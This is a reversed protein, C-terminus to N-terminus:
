GCYFCNTKEENLKDSNKLDFYNMNTHHTGIVLEGRYNEYIDMEIEDTEQKELSQELWERADSM